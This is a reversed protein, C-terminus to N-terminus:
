GLSASIIVQISYVMGPLIPITMCSSNHRYDSATRWQPSPGVCLSYFTLRRSLMVVHLPVNVDVLSHLCPLSTVLACKAVAKRHKGAPQPRMTLSSDNGQPPHLVQWSQLYRFFSSRKKGHPICCSMLLEHAHAVSMPYAPWVPLPQDGHTTERKQCSYSAVDQTRLLAAQGRFICWTIRCHEQLGLTQYITKMGHCFQGSGQATLPKGPQRVRRWSLEPAVSCPQRQKSQFWCRLVLNVLKNISSRCM